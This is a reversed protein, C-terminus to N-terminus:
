TQGGIAIADAANFDAWLRAYLGDQEVLETHRGREVIQGDDIVLIADAGAITTLRHAIMIVTKGRVLESIAAQLLRENEPDVFATAEDLVIVPADHLIARAITLRQQEGGSLRVGHEGVRTAYGADFACITDHIHAKRAAAEIEAQTADPKGVRLNNAITDDFLFTEQLVMSVHSSLVDNPVDRLMVGGLDIFGEDVDWFRGILAAITSKGGGSPGVLATLEGSPASFSINRLVWDDEYRFSVNNFTVTADEPRTSSNTAGDSLTAQELIETVLKGGSAIHSLNAFLFLLTVFTGLAGLGVILFFLLAETSLSGTSWLWGGVPLILLINAGLLVYFATGFPLFILSYERVVNVYRSIMRETGRVEDADRNFTKVVAMGRILEVIAANMEGQTQKYEGMHSGASRMAYAISGFAPIVLGFVALAMRWDVWIMWGLLGFFTVIAATLDPIAHALFLELREVDDGMIKKIEGSRRRNTFGLPMRALHEALSVRIGYQIEFAAMHAIYTSIGDLLFRIVVAGLAIFALPWLGALATDTASVLTVATQYVVWYPVLGLLAAVVAIAGSLLLRGRLPRAFPLLAKIGGGVSEKPANAAPEQAGIAGPETVQESM